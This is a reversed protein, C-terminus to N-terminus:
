EGAVLELELHGSTFERASRSAAFYSLFLSLLIMFGLLVWDVSFALTVGRLLPLIEQTSLWGLTIGLVGGSICGLISLLTTELLFTKIVMSAGAGILRLLGMDRRRDHAFVLFSVLLHFFTIIGAVLAPAYAVYVASKLAGLIMREFEPRDLVYLNYKRGWRSEIEGKVKKAEKKSTLFIDFSHVLRDQFLRSYVPYHLWIAGLDTGYFRVVGCIRFRKKGEGTPIEVFEGVGKHFSRYFTETILVAKGGLLDAKCSLPDGALPRFTYLEGYSTFDYSLLQIRKGEFPVPVMRFINVFRVGPLRSLEERFQLQLPTTLPGVLPWSSTVHIDAQVEQKVWNELTKSFSRVTVSIAIVVAISIALSGATASARATDRGLNAVAAKYSLTPRYLRLIVRLISRSLLLLFPLNTLILIFPILLKGLSFYLASIKLPLLQFALLLVWGSLAVLFAQGFGWAPSSAERAQEVASQRIARIAPIIAGGLICLIGITLSLVITQFSLLIPSSFVPMYLETVVREVFRLSGYGLGLGLLIGCPLAVVGLAFAEFLVLTIVGGPHLGICRLVALDHRLSFVRHSVTNYILVMSLFASFLAIVLLILSFTKLMEQSFADLEQADTVEIGFLKKESIKEALEKLSLSSKIAFFDVKGEAGLLTQIATLYGIFVPIRTGEGSLSSRTTYEGRIILTRKGQSTLIELPDSMKLGEQKMFWSPVMVSDTANLFSLEDTAFRITVDEPFVKEAGSFFDVGFLQVRYEREHISFPLTRLLVGVAQNVGPIESLLQSFFDPLAGGGEPVAVQIDKGLLSLSNAYLSATLSQRIVLIGVVVAVGLCVGLSTFLLRAKRRKWDSLFLKWAFRLL